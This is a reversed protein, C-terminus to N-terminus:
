RRLAPEETARGGARGRAVRVHFYGWGGLLGQPGIEVLTAWNEHPFAEAQSSKILGIENETPFMLCITSVSAMSM